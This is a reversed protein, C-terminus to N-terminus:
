EDEIEGLLFDHIDSELLGDMTETTIWNGIENYQYANMVDEYLTDMANRVMEENDLDVVYGINIVVGGLRM